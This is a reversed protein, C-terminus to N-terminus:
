AAMLLEIQQTKTRRRNAIQLRWVNTLEEWREMELPEPLRSSKCMIHFGHLVAQTESQLGIRHHGDEYRGFLQGLVCFRGNGLNLTALNVGKDWDPLQEDLLRIGRDVRDKLSSM